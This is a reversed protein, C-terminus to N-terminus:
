RKACYIIELIRFSLMMKFYKQNSFQLAFLAGKIHCAITAKKSIEIKGFNQQLKHFPVRMESSQNAESM